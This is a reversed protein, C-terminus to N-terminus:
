AQGQSESAGQRFFHQVEDRKAMTDRYGLDILAQTFPPEFLLYSTLAGGNRNMAGIGRLLARVPWPLARAHKAALHDLRQSPSIVLVEIPRLNVGNRRRQEEPILSLTHNVRDMREIDMWLSDLFISALTHGAVQALSPYGSVEPRASEEAMRGAGIVLIKEAGLHIAPSIPALQRMSGDGFYERHLKVAPFLFPIASSAMLHEVDLKVHAGVRQSRRWPELDARGQFFSVSEGSNYGSCTVSVARLARSTVVDDIRAMDVREQLLQRLPANDLLSRPASRVLWGLSLAGLWRAATLGIGAADARYVHEAHFGQWVRLLREVADGFDDARSALVAANIAGASTGCLIPFPNTKPDPLLERIAKLVGIQYGARAGGGTLVLATTDRGTPM